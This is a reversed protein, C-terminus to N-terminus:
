VSLTGGIATSTLVRPPPAEDGPRLGPAKASARPLVEAAVRFGDVGAPIGCYVAVQLLV